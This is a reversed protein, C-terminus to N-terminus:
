AVNSSFTANVFAFQGIEFASADTPSNLTLAFSDAYRAPARFTVGALLAARKMRTTAAVPSTPPSTRETRRRSLSTDAAM